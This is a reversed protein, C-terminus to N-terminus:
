TQAPEAVQAEEEITTYYVEVIERMDAKSLKGEMFDQLATLVEDRDIISDENLDYKDVMSPLNEFDIAGLETDYYYKVIFLIELKTILGLGYTAAAAEVEEKELRENHNNAVDFIDAKGPLKVDTLHIELETTTEEDGPDTVVLTVVHVKQAEYDLVADKGVLIQGTKEDITFPEADDGRLSFALVDNEPDWALIPKGVKVGEESNEPVTRVDGASDRFKPATNRTQPSSAFGGGGGGGNNQPLTGGGGGGGGGGNNENGGNNTETEETNTGGNNNNPDPTGGGNGDDPPTVVDDPVPTYSPDGVQLYLTLTTKQLFNQDLSAEFEYVANDTLTTAWVATATSTAKPAGTGWEESPYVRQRLYVDNNTGDTNALGVTITATSGSLTASIETLATDTGLTRTFNGELKSGQTGFAAFDWQLRCRYEYDTPATLPQMSASGVNGDFPGSIVPSWIGSGDALQTQCGLEYDQGNPVDMLGTIVAETETVKRVGMRVLDPEFTWSTDTVTKDAPFTPDLSAEMVYPTHSTLGTMLKYAETQPNGWPVTVSGTIWTASDEARWRYYVTQAVGSLNSLSIQLGMETKTADLLSAEAMPPLTTFTETVVGTAFTVDLSAEVIFDFAAWLTGVGDPLNTVSLASAPLAFVAVGADSTASLPPADPFIEGHREGGVNYASPRPITARPYPTEPSYKLYVTTGDADDDAVNVTVTASNATIDSVVISSISPDPPSQALATSILLSATLSAAAILAASVGIARRRLAFM